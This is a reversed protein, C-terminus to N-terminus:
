RARFQEAAAESKEGAEARRRCEVLFDCVWDAEGAFSSSGRVAALLAAEATPVAEACRGEALLVAAEARLRTAPLGHGSMTRTLWSRAAVADHRHYGHFYAGELLLNQRFITRYGARQSLALDLLEGAREVRGNDLAHYYGLFNAFVDRTSGDRLALLSEVQAADWDRPRVGAPTNSSLLIGLVRREALTGGVLLELLQQGDTEWLRARGPSLSGIGLFLNLLAAFSLLVSLFNRPVLDAISGLWTAAPRPDNLAVAGALCLVAVLLNALPGGGVLLAYRTRLGRSGVPYCMVLGLPNYHLRHRGWRYANGQRWIALPGVVILYPRFRVALGALHHGLEHGAVSVFFLLLGLIALLPLVALGVEVALILVTGVWGIILLAVVVSALISVGWWLITLVLTLLTRM